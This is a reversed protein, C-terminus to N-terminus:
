FYGYCSGRDEITLRRPDVFEFHGDEFRVLAESQFLGVNFAIVEVDHTHGKQCPECNEPKIRDPWLNFCDGCGPHDTYKAKVLM